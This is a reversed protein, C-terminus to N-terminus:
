AAKGEQGGTSKLLATMRRDVRIRGADIEPLLRRTLLTQEAQADHNTTPDVRANSFYHSQCRFFSFGTVYIDGCEKLLHDLLLLIGCAGTSPYRGIQAIQREFWCLSPAWVLSKGLRRMGATILPGHRLRLGAEPMKHFNNPSSSLILSPQRRDPHDYDIDTYFNTLWADTKAGLQREYETTRYNNMRVVLDFQDITSGQCEDKLYGANGVLAVSKHRFCGAAALDSWYCVTATKRQQRRAHWARVTELSHLRM